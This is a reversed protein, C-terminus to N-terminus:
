GSELRALRTLNYSLISSWVYAKFGDHGKWNVKSLGFARKLESINGEIGARFRKYKDYTRKQIGMARITIGKKKHFVVRRIGLGRGADVNGQSAYGGDAVVSEPIEGYLDEHGKLLPIYRDTDAPNGSEITALTILGRTDTVLNIKHGYEIDRSGKIIIDTHSEFLSVIKETAPVKENHIVRRETQEIIQEALENYHELEELWGIVDHTVISEVRVREEAREVQHIVNKTLKLLDIYLRDKEAKKAYFIRRALSKSAKRHDTFRIKIGTRVQSKALTRSLVRVADNLLQSDSPPAINSKVVTSDLRLTTLDIDGANFVNVSLTNYIAELTEPKVHRINAQLASKGPSESADLRAFTRFTLSDSLHFALREYSVALKQKLLLCRFVSEVSLGNRGFPQCSEDILDAAMLTLLDPHDDL